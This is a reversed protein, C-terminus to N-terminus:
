WEFLTVRHSQMPDIAQMPSESKKASILLGQGRGIYITVIPPDLRPRWPRRKPYGFEENEHLKRCFM